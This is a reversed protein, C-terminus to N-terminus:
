YIHSVASCNSVKYNLISGIFLSSFINIDSSNYLLKTRRTGIHKQKQRPGPKMQKQFHHCINCNDSHPKWFDSFTNAKDKHFAFQRSFDMIGDNTSAKRQSHKM